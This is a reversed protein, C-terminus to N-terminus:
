ITQVQHRACGIILEMQTEQFHLTFVGLLGFSSTPEEAGPLNPNARNLAQKLVHAALYVAAMVNPIAHAYGAVGDRKVGRPM